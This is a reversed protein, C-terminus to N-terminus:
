ADPEAARAEFRDCTDTAVVEKRHMGCWQTFPNIVYHRCYRCLRRNEGEQFLVPKVPRDTASFVGPTASAELYPVEAESAYVHGCAACVFSDGAKKLGEYVPQRVILTEQHCATCLIESSRASSM